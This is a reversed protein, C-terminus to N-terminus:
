NFNLQIAKTRNIMIAFKSFPYFMYFHQRILWGVVSYTNVLQLNM